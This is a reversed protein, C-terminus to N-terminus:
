AGVTTDMFSTTSLRGDATCTRVRGFLKNGEAIPFISNIAAPNAPPVPDGTVPGLFQYPGRFYNISANQARSLYIFMFGGAENAWPDTFGDSTFDIEGAQTAESFAQLKPKTHEGLNFISPGDDVRAVEAQLRPTNSRIYMAQGSVNVQAGIRNTLKVNEAYQNWQSRQLATLANNWMNALLSVATRVAQQFSTNPNTPISLARIYQGGANHSYVLGGIKGSVTAGILPTILAM